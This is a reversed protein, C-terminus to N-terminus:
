IIDKFPNINDEIEICWCDKDGNHFDSLKNDADSENLNDIENWTYKDSNFDYERSCITFKGMNNKDNIKLYILGRENDGSHIVYLAKGMNTYDRVVSDIIMKIALTTM